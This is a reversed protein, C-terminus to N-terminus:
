LESEEAFYNVVHIPPLIIPPIGAQATFSTILARVYPLVIAMANMQFSKIDVDESCEFLGRMSVKLSFLLNETVIDEEEFIMCTLIIEAKTRSDEISVESNFRFSLNKENGADYQYNPNRRFVVQDVLCETFRLNSVVRNNMM